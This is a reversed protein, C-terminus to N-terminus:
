TSKTAMAVPKAPRGAPAMAALRAASAPDHTPLYVLPREAALARIRALTAAAAGQDPSVGDVKGALMLRENYSTDGALFLTAGGADVLVSVHHPTHGPTPVVIVDGARTMRRSAPFPGTPGDRFDIPEPEFWHPWRRPLYGRITGAIGRTADVEGRAAFIRSHPFHRLGADHDIHLHTLVVQKVDRPGIGLAALQPGVEQEPRIDFEVCRRFFPHLSRRCIEILDAAAGTDVVIVGESHEIAWAYTPLWGTWERDTLIDLSALLGARRAEVQHQKIRVRGTEIAHVKMTGTM